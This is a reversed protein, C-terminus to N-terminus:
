ACQCRELAALEDGWEEILGYHKEADSCTIPPWAEEATAFREKEADILRRLEAIRETRTQM